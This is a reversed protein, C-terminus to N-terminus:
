SGVVVWPGFVDGWVEQSGNNPAPVIGLVKCMLQYVELNTFAKMVPVGDRVQITGEAITTGNTTGNTSSSVSSSASASLVSVEEISRGAIELSEGAEVVVAAAAAEAAVISAAVDGGLANASGAKGGKGELMMAKASRFAPGRAAFLARMEEVSNNYGHVGAPRWGGFGLHGVDKHNRVDFIWGVDTVAIIPSIRSSNSFHYAPPVSEDRMYVRFHGVSESANRLAEYIPKTQAPDKPHLGVVPTNDVIEVSEMDVFDDVYIMREESVAAMGHDSLIIVNVVHSLNRAELGDLFRKLAKDVKTLATNVTGSDPGAAHGASDVDPIYLTMFHPRTSAPLDLWSLIHDVRDELSINPDYPVSINPKIGEITATSGPWMCTNATKNQKIATVWIPEGLWWKSLKSIDPDTYVFTSNDVPDIFKNGVIGHSEPYLGTVITYHNPFTISKMKARHNTNIDCTLIKLVHSLLMTSVPFVPQMYEARVGDLAFQKLTPTFGRDFYDARFGDLSILVLTPEFDSNNRLGGGGGKGGGGAEAGGSQLPAPPVPLPPVSSNRRYIALAAATAILLIGLTSLIIAQYIRIRPHTTWGRQKERKREGEVLMTEEDFEEHFADGLMFEGASAERSLGNEGGSM